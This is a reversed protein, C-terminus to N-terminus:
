REERGKCFDNIGGKGRARSTFCRLCSTRLMMSGVRSRPWTSRCLLAVEAVLAAAVAGEEEDGCPRSSSGLAETRWSDYTAGSGGGAFIPGAM